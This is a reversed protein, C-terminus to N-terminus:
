KQVGIGGCPVQLYWGENEDFHLLGLKGENRLPDSILASPLKDENRLRIPTPSDLKVEDRLCIPTPSSLSRRVQSEPPSRLFILSSKSKSSSTPNISPSPSQSSLTAEDSLRISFSVFPEATPHLQGIYEYDSVPSSSSDPSLKVEERLSTSSSILREVTQHLCSS